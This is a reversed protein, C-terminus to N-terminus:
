IFVLVRSAAPLSFFLQIAIYFTIMYAMRVVFLVRMCIKGKNVHVHGIRLVGNLSEKHYGVIIFFLFKEWLCM